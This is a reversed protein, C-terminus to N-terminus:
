IGALEPLSSFIAISSRRVLIVLDAQGLEKSELRKCAPCAFFDLSQLERSPVSFHVCAKHAAKAANKTKALATKLVRRSSFQSFSMRWLLDSRRMGSKM